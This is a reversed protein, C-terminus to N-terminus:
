IIITTPLPIGIEYYTGIYNTVSTSTLWVEVTSSRGSDYLVVDISSCAGPALRAGGCNRSALRRGRGGAAQAASIKLMMGGVGHLERGM